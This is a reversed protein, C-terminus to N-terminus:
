DDPSIKMSTVNKTLSQMDQVYELVQRCAEDNPELELAKLGSEVARELDGTEAYALGQVAFSYANEHLGLAKKVLRLAEDGNRQSDDSSFALIYALNNLLMTSKDNASLGIRFANEAEKYAKRYALTTGVTSYCDGIANTRSQRSLFAGNDVSAQPVDHDLIYQSDPQSRGSTTEWNLYDKDNFYWRVFAHKPIKALCIPLGLSDGVALYMFSGTNCDTLFFDKGANRLIQARRNASTTSQLVEALLEDNLKTPKLSQSFTDISISSPPYVFNLEIMVADITALTRQAHELIQDPTDIKIDAPIRLKVEKIVQDVRDYAEKPVDLFKAEIDLFEHGINKPKDISMKAVTVNTAASKSDNSETYVWEPLLFAEPEGAYISVSSALMWVIVSVHKWLSM